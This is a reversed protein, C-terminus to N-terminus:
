RDDHRTIKEQIPPQSARPSIKVGLRGPSNHLPIGTACSGSKQRKRSYTPSLSAKAGGRIQSIHERLLENHLVKVALATKCRELAAQHILDFTSQSM